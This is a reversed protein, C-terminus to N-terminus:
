VDSFDVLFGRGAGFVDAVAKSEFVMVIAAEPQGLGFVRNDRNGQITGLGHHIPEAEYAAALKVHHRMVLDGGIVAPVDQRDVVVFKTRVRM